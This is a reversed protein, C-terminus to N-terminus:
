KSSQSCRPYGLAIWQDLEINRGEICPSAWEELINPFSVAGANVVFSICLMIQAYLTEDWRALKSHAQGLAIVSMGGSDRVQVNAGKSLLFKTATWRGLKVAIHLPTEGLRNRRNINAGADFLRSLIIPLSGDDEGDPIHTIFAMLPTLGLKDHNDPDVGAILLDELYAERRTHLFANDQGVERNLPVGPIPLNLSVEALCHLGNRGNMDESQPVTYARLITRLLDAHQEYLRLDDITEIFTHMGYNPLCQTNTRAAHIAPNSVFPVDGIHAAVRQQLRDIESKKIKAATLQGIITRGFNDRSTPLLIKSLHLEAVIKDLVARHIWPRTILQLPTQGHHDRQYFNFEESQLRNLLSCLDSSDEPFVAHVLHLFTQGASNLAHINAKLDLLHLLYKPPKGLAAAIHLISNGFIDLKHIDEAKVRGDRVSSILKAWIIGPKSSEELRRTRAFRRDQPERNIIEEWSYTTFVWPLLMSHERSARGSFLSAEMEDVGPPTQTTDGHNALTGSFSKRSRRHGRKSSLVSSGGITLNQMVSLIDGLCSETKDSLRKRLSRISIVSAQYSKVRPYTFSEDYLPEKSNSPHLDQSPQKPVPYLRESSQKGEPAESIIVVPSCPRSWNAAVSPVTDTSQSSSVISHMSSPDLELLPVNSLSSAHSVCTPVSDLLPSPANRNFLADGIGVPPWENPEIEPNEYSLDEPRATSGENHNNVIMPSATDLGLDIWSWDIPPDGCISLAPELDCESSTIENQEAKNGDEEQKLQSQTSPHLTRCERMARLRVKPMTGRSRIKDPRSQLLVNLQKQVDRKSNQVMLALIYSLFSSGVM